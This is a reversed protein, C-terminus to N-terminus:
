RHGGASDDQPGRSIPTEGNSRSPVGHGLDELIFIVMMAQMGQGGEAIQKGTLGFGDTSSDNQDLAARFGCQSQEDLLRDSKAKLM